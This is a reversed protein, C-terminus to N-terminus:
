TQCSVNLLTCNFGKKNWFSLESLSLITSNAALLMALPAPSLLIHHEWTLLQQHQLGSCVSLSWQAQKESILLMRDWLTASFVLVHM